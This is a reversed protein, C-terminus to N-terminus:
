RYDINRLIANKYNSYFDNSEHLKNHSTNWDNMLIDLLEITALRNTQASCNLCVRKVIKNPSVDLLAKFKLKNLNM